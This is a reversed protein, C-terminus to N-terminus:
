LPKLENTEMNVSFQIKENKAPTSDNSNKELETKMIQLYIEKNRKGVISLNYEVDGKNINAINYTDYEKLIDGTSDNIIAILNSTKQSNYLVLVKNIGNVVNFGTIASGRFLITKTGDPKIVTLEEYYEYPNTVNERPKNGTKIYLSNNAKIVDLGSNRNPYGTEIVTNKDGLVCIVNLLSKNDANQTYEFNLTECNEKSNSLLNVTQRYNSLYPNKIFTDGYHGFFGLFYSLSMYLFFQLKLLM